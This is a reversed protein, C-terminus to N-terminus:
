IEFHEMDAAEDVFKHATLLVVHAALKELTPLEYVLQPKLDLKFDRKILTLLRIASLSHGGIEFFNDDLSIQSVPIDLITAWIKALSNESEKEPKRFEKAENLESLEKEKLETLKKRNVKGNTNLPIEDVLILRSPIMFAPLRAAISERIECVSAETSKTKIYAILQRLGVEGGQVDAVAASVSDIEMLRQEIEGLEIRFGNLKIQNDIRGIFELNKDARIRVRDGTRYLRESIVKSANFPNSIFSKKTLEENNLYGLAVGSGGVWLEGACGFPMLKRSASLVYIQTDNVPVGIPVSKDSESLLSTDYCCTFTTNETPGYGNILKANPIQTNVRNVSDLKLVDGGALIWRLTDLNEVSEAWLEFVGATLWIANVKKSQIFQNLCNLDTIDNDYIICTGGNLLPGWIELTSADFASSAAQLFRTNTDLQMYNPNSVLRMVGSHKVLVGKPKGTSGSTYNVYAILQDDYSASNIGLNSNETYDANRSAEDVFLCRLGESAFKAENASHCVIVTVASDKLMYRMREVPYNPEIPLYSGRVKLIALLTIILEPSPELCFGVIDGPKVGLAVLSHARSNALQNLMQYTLKEDQFEIAIHEPTLNVQHEFQASIDSDLERSNSTLNLDHLLYNIESESLMLESELDLMPNSAMSHLISELHSAVQHLQQQSISKSSGSIKFNLTETCDAVVTLEYDTEEFVEFETLKITQSTKSGILKDDLPYNEFVLLSNLLSGDAILESECLIDVLPLYSYENRRIHRKHLSNFWDKFLGTSPVDTRVPITNIFLGVMKDVHSIEAPRGSVTTGFVVTTEDSYRSLLYSWAAQLITNMTVRCDKALRQLCQTEQKSLNRQEITLKKGYSRKNNLEPLIKTPGEVGDLEERWFTKATLNDQNQLWRSYEAYSTVQETQNAVGDMLCRYHSLVATFILPFSWGDLIAHHNSLLVRYGAKGLSWINFRLLPANTLNFGKSKDEMRSQEIVQRADSASLNELDTIQWPLKVRKEVLQFLKGDNDTVFAARLSDYQGIVRQWAQELIRLDVQKELNFMLQSVYASSDLESHFILGQQMATAPYIADIAYDQQWRRLSAQDVAALPFDSPTLCGVGEEVCHRIVAALAREINSTFAVISDPTYRRRDYSISFSLCGGVVAGNLNLGHQPQREPSMTQGCSELALGFVSESTAGQGFQGLYNFLVPSAEAATLSPEKALYKLLGYGVGQNPVERCQEKVQCILTEIDVTETTLNLPYFTTFWGVTQSIDMAESLVQRGHSELDIRLQTQGTWDYVGLLLASLLLENIQTRYAKGAETLLQNTQAETLRFESSGFGSSLPTSDTPVRLASMPTSVVERWYRREQEMAESSAHAQLFEAWAQYSHTKAALSLGEGKREQASLQEIDAHLIRWSVGDVVLHHLILLLRQEGLGNRCLVARFLRGAKIDLSQQLPTAAEDLGSFDDGEIVLEAVTADVMARSLDAYDARWDGDICDFRLRLADHRQYLAKVWHHLQTLTFDEPAQMLMAQNYHSLAREDEFFYAQIPLLIQEGSSATQEALEMSAQKVQPALEEITQYDFLAKITLTLGAARARSVVQISLISDGGLEFFNASMSLSDSPVNLLESWIDRLALEVSTRPEVYDNSALTVEPIPLAKRDLKGNPNLPFQPLSHFVSPVMYDPLQTQLQQRILGNLNAENAVAKAGSDSFTYYGVLRRQGPSDERVLVAAQDVWECQSLQHEIEGLEIRFGRLKVQHDTRGIFELQGDARYRVWDGTRYLRASPDSSFPHRIFREATLEPQNLYGRALGVGGIYLEGPTGIPQLQQEDNLVYLQTNQIPRGINIDTKGLVSSVSACISTESPGYANYFKVKDCWKEQLRSEYDEGAVVIVELPYDIEHDLMQLFAPPLTVHSIQSEMILKSVRNPEKRDSENAIVLCAGSLLAMVWEWTAADFNISAFHLVKSQQTVNFYRQQFEALNVIGRHSLMVAKPKGTSGSTYIVYALDLASSGVLREHDSITQQTFDLLRNETIDVSEVPLSSFLEITESHCVVHSIRSDEVMAQTRKPPYEPDLPLYAAGCKLIGLMGIIMDANRVTSIGVIDGSTVGKLMLLDAISSSLQDIESYCWTRGDAQVATKESFQEVVNRFAQHISCDDSFPIETNVLTSQLRNTQRTDLVPLESLPLESDSIANCIVLSLSRCINQIVSEDFLASDFQLNLVLQEEVENAQLVLDFRPSIEEDLYKSPLPKASLGPLELQQTNNTNMSFLVQFLPHVQTDREPNLKDVLLDFPIDQNAQADLNIERVHKLFSSFRVSGVCEVRLVLTNVFFGIVNEINKDLRNAVPTGIVIDNQNSYKALVWAFCAHILMFRTIEHERVFSNMRNLSSQDLVVEYNRARHKNKDFMNRKMPLSHRPPLNALRAEWYALQKQAGSQRLWNSQWVSYDAYQVGLPALVKSFDEESSGYLLGFERVLIGVSWGDSAIHHMNFLLIASAESILIVSARVMLDSDLNFLAGNNQAVLKKIVADKKLESHHRIDNIGLSFSFDDSIVQMPGDDSEQFRTRLVEHRNVLYSFIREIKEVDLVGDLMVASPMGYANNGKDMQDIFWLRRQPYSAPFQYGDRNIRTISPRNLRDTEESQQRLYDLLQTKNKKILDITDPLLKGKLARAKLKEDSVYLEVGVRAIREVIDVVNEMM